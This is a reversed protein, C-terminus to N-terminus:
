LESRSMGNHFNNFIAEPHPWLLSTSLTIFTMKVFLPKQTAMKFM